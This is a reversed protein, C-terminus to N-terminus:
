QLETDFIEVLDLYKTPLPYDRRTGGIFVIESGVVAALPSQRGTKLRTPSSWSNQLPDYREVLDLEEPGYFVEGGALYIAEGVAACSAFRLHPERMPATESWIGAATDYKLVLESPYGGSGELVPAFVYISNGHVCSQNRNEFPMPAPQGTTWSNSAADYIEVDGIPGPGGIVYLKGNVAASAFALQRYVARSARTRWQDTAPTYELLENGFGGPRNVVIVYIKDGIVHAPSSFGFGMPMPAKKSWENRAVDYEHVDTSFNPPGFTDTPFSGGLLYVKGDLAAVSAGVAKTPMPAGGRWPCEADGACLHLFVSIDPVGLGQPYDILSRSRLNDAIVAPSLSRVARIFEDIFGSKDIDGDAALDASLTNLILTLEADTTTGFEAAKTAAYKYFATSLALLYANGVGALGTASTDYISLGSFTALGTVPLARQFAALLESEAQTVADNFSKGSRAILELARDNILHTLMNVYARQNPQDTLQYLARLTLTGNSPQGTLESFYYGSAVIQVPGPENSVFDFSGVSDEVQSVITSSTSRGLSDLRNILVTSGVLFPGKQVAGKVEVSVPPNVPTRSAPPDDGGGGGCGAFLLVTVLGATRNVM